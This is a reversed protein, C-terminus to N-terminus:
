IGHGRAVKLRSISITVFVFLFLCVLCSRFCYFICHCMSWTGRKRDEQVKLTDENNSIVVDEAVEAAVLTADGIDDLSGGYTAKTTSNIDEPVEEENLNLTNDM